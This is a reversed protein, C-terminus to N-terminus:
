KVGNHTEFRSGGAVISRDRLEHLHVLAACVHVIAKMADPIHVQRNPSSDILELLSPGHLYKEVLFQCSEHTGQGFIHVINPHALRRLLRAERKLGRAEKSHPAFRRLLIECTLACISSASWVQYLESINGASLHRIV